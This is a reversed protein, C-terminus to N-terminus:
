PAFRMRLLILRFLHQVLPSFFILTLLPLVGAAIVAPIFLSSYRSNYLRSVGKADVLRDGVKLRVLFTSSMGKRGKELFEVVSSHTGIAVILAAGMEYPLLLAIDESTGPATFVSYTIGLRDLRSRGPVGRGDHYAHVVVERAKVLAKDSVSDMDGIILDPIYGHELLADGGGDVGVLVPRKERLYRNIADLDERYGKGRIVVVVDKNLFDTKLRPIDLVGTILLRERYAYDLTNVVFDDIVAERLRLEDPSLDGDISVVQGCCLKRGRHYIAGNNVSIRDGEKLEGFLRDPLRDVLQIGKQALFQIATPPFLGTCFTGTNLVAKVGCYALSEAAVWDLNNHDLLAIDGPRLRRVLNKTVRDKRLRGTFQQEHCQKGPLLSVM